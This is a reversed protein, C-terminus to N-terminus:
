GVGEGWSREGEGAGAGAGAGEGEGPMSTMETACVPDPLVSATVGEM